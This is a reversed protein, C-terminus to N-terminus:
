TGMAKSVVPRRCTSWVLQCTAPVSSRTTSLKKSRTGSRGAGSSSRTARRRAIASVQAASPPVRTSAHTRSTSVEGARNWTTRM